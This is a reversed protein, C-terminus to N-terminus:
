GKPKLHIRRGDEPRPAEPAPTKGLLATERKDAEAQARMAQALGACVPCVRYAIELDPDSDAIDEPFGCACLRSEYQALELMKQREWDDWEAERTVVTRVLRGADDYEHEHVERPEWGLLRKESM